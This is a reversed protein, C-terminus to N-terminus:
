MYETCEASTSFPLLMFRSLLRKLRHEETVSKIDDIVHAEDPTQWRRESGPTTM